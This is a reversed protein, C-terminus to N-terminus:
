FKVSVGFSFTRQVPIYNNGGRNVSSGTLATTEQDWGFYDTFLFPNTANFYVRLSKIGLNQTAVNSFTYGFQINKVRLYSIDFLTAESGNGSNAGSANTTGSVVERTDPDLIARHNFYYQFSNFDPTYGGGYISEIMTEKGAEGSLLFSLDFGKWSAYGSIGYYYDPNPDGLYTQDDSNIIGDPHGDPGSIDLYRYDGPRIDGTRHPNSNLEDWTRWIGNTKYGWYSNIPYGEKIAINGSIMPEIGGMDVIENENHSLNASLGYSFDGVKDDWRATIEWGKNEVEGINVIPGSVDGATKPVTANMLLDTTNKKYYDFELNLKNKLFAVDLGADLTATTEWKVKENTMGTIYYAPNDTQSTTGFPYTDNLYYSSVWSYPPIKANGLKGYGVRVKLNTVIRQSKMFQEESIRWAGSISPFTGFQDDPAFASSGDRRITASFLFRSDYDYNIRGFLSTYATVSESGYSSRVTSGANMVHLKNNPFNEKRLTFSDWYTKESSFGALANITHRGIKKDFTLLEQVEWGYNNDSM